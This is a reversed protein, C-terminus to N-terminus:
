ILPSFFNRALVHWNTTNITLNSLCTGVSSPWDQNGSHDLGFYFGGDSTASDSVPSGYIELQGLVAQSATNQCATINSYGYPYQATANNVNLVFVDGIVPCAAINSCSGGALGGVQQAYNVTANGSYFAAKKIFNKLPHPPPIGLSAYNLYDEGVDAFGLNGFGGLGWAANNAAQSAYSNGLNLIVGAHGQLASGTWIVHWGDDYENRGPDFTDFHCDSGPMSVNYCDPNQIVGELAYSSGVFPWSCTGNSCGGYAETVSATVVPDSPSAINIRSLTANSTNNTWASMNHALGTVIGPSATPAVAVSANIISDPTGATNNFVQVGGSGTMPYMYVGPAASIAVSYGYYAEKLSTGWMDQTSGPTSVTAVDIRNIGESNLNVENSYASNKPTVTNTGGGGVLVALVLDNSLTTTIAPADPTTTSATQALAQQDISAGGSIEIATVSWHGSGGSFTYAKATQGTAVFVAFNQSSIGNSQAEPTFGNPATIATTSTSKVFFWLMDLSSPANSFTVTVSSASPASTSATQPESFAPLLKGAPSAIGAKYQPLAGGPSGPIHSACAIFLCAAVTALSLAKVFQQVNRM